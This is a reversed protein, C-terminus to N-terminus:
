RSQMKPLGFHQITKVTQPQPLEELIAGLAKDCLASDNLEMGAELVVGLLKDSFSTRNYFFNNGLLCAKTGAIVRGCIRALEECDDTEGAHSTRILQRVWDSLDKNSTVISDYVFDNKCEELM